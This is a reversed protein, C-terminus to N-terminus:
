CPFVPRRGKVGYDPLLGDGRCQLIGDAVVCECLREQKATGSAYALGGTGTDHRLGDVAQMGCLVHLGAVLAFRALREVVVGREVDVLKVRCGVVRHIVDSVQHLLHADRRLDSLVFDIDDVLDVHEAGGGEVGEQLGQFLRRRIGLEDQGGCFLM